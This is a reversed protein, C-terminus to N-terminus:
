AENNREVRIEWVKPRRVKRFAISSCHYRTAVRALVVHSLVHGPWSFVLNLPWVRSDVGRGDREGINVWGASMEGVVRRDAMM